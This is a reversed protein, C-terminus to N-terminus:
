VLVTQGSSVEVRVYNGWVSPKLEPLFSLHFYSIHNFEKQRKIESQLSKQGQMSYTFSTALLSLDGGLSQHQAVPSCEQLCSHTHFCVPLISLDGSSGRTMPQPSLSLLTHSAIFSKPLQGLGGRNSNKVEADAGETTNPENPRITKACEYREDILSKARTSTSVSLWPWSSMNSAREYFGGGEQYHFYKYAGVSCETETQILSLKRPNAQRQNWRVRRDTYQSDMVRFWVRNCICECYRTKLTPCQKPVFLGDSFRQKLWTLLAHHGFSQSWHPM